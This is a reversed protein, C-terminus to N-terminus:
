SFSRVLDFRSNLVDNSRSPLLLRECKTHRHCIKLIMLSLAMVISTTTRNRTIPLLVIEQPDLRPIWNLSFLYLALFRYCPDTNDKNEFKWLVCSVQSVGSDKSIAVVERNGIRGVLNGKKWVGYKLIMGKFNTGSIVCDTVDCDHLTAKRLKSNSVDTGVLTSRRLDSTERVASKKLSTRWVYSQDQIVSDTAENRNFSNLDCLQSNRATSRHSRVNSLVCGKFTCRKVWTNTVTCDHLDSRIIANGDASQLAIDDRMSADQM